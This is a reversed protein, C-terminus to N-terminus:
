DIQIVKRDFPNLATGVVDAEVELRYESKVSKLKKAASVLGKLIFNKEQIQDMKSKLLDFSMEFDVEISEDKPVEVIKNVEHASLLYEDTLKKKKRGRSYKEILRLSIATVTQENMSTFRVKGKIVGSDSSITEPVLLEVKVGEIGLWNKVRKLM